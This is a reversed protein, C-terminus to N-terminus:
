FRPFYKKSQGHLNLGSILLHDITIRLMRLLVYLALNYLCRVFMSPYPRLDFWGFGSSTIPIDTCIRVQVTTCTMKSGTGMEVHVSM